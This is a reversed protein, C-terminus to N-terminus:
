SGKMSIFKKYFANNTYIYVLCHSINTHIQTSIVTQCLVTVSNQYVIFMVYYSKKLHCMYIIHELGYNYMILQTM